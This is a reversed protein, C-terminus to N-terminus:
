VLLHWLHQQIRHQEDAHQQEFFAPPHRLRQELKRHQENLHQQQKVLALFIGDGNNSNAINSTLTNNSTFYLHIGYFNSNAINNTLINYNSLQRVFIGHHSNRNATNNTLTNNNSSHDLLIGAWNNSATNNSVNCHDAHSLYIGAKWRDTAGTVNFGSINVYDRRVEFVNDNSNAAQVSTSAAGNESKITLHDVNVDVNETYTGDRVVITDNATANNVAQQITTFNDPVYIMAASACGISVFALTAFLVAFILAMGFNGRENKM